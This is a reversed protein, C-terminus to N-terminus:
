RVSELWSNILDHHADFLTLLHVVLREYFVVEELLEPEMKEMLAILSLYAHNEQAVVEELPISKYKQIISDSASADEFFPSGLDPHNFNL